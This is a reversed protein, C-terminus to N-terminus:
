KQEWLSCYNGAGNKIEAYNKGFEDVVLYGNQIRVFIGDAIVTGKRNYCSIRPNGVITVWQGNNLLVKSSPDPADVNYWGVIRYNLSACSTLLLLLPLLKKM